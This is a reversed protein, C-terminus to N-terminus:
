GHTSLEDLAAVCYAFVALRGAADTRQWFEPPQTQTALNRAVEAQIRPDKSRAEMQGAAYSARALVAYNTPQADPCTNPDM